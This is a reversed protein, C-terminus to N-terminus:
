ADTDHNTSTEASNFRREMWGIAILVFVGFLTTAGALLIHNVAVAIGIGATLFISAATTLGEVRTGGQHIITGTGLFSIGIVIAQMIRLPDAELGEHGRSRFETIVADGLIMLLAAGGCVFIHTRLGAPKDSVERELGLVAGLGGALAVLGFQIFQESLAM